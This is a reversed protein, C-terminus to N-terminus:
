TTGSGCPLSVTGRSTDVGVHLAECLPDTDRSVGRLHGPPCYTVTVSSHSAASDFDNNVAM